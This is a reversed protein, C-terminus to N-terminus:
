SQTFVIMLIGLLKKHNVQELMNLPTIHKM